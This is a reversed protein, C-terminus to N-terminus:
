IIPFYLFAWVSLCFRYVYITKLCIITRRIVFGNLVCRSTSPFFVLKTWVSTIILMLLLLPSYKKRMRACVFMCENRWHKWDIYEHASHINLTISKNIGMCICDNHAHCTESIKWREHCNVMFWDLKKLIDLFTVIFKFFLQFKGWFFQYIQFKQRLWKYYGLATFDTWYTSDTIIKLMIISLALRFVVVCFFVKFGDEVKWHVFVIRSSHFICNGKRTHTYTHKRKRRSWVM